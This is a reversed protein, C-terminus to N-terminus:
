LGCFTSMEGTKNPWSRLNLKDMDASMDDPVTTCARMNKLGM